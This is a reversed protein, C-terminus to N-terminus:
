VLLTLGFRAIKERSVLLSYPMHRERPPMKKLTVVLEVWEETELLNSSEPKTKLHSLLATMAKRNQEMSIPLDSLSPAIKQPQPQLKAPLLLKGQKSSAKTRVM